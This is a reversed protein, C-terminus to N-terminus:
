LINFLWKTILEKAKPNIRMLEIWELCRGNDIEELYEDWFKQWSEWRTDLAREILEISFGIVDDEGLKSENLEDVLEKCAKYMNLEEHLQPMLEAELEDINWSKIVFEKYWEISEQEVEKGNNFYRIGM